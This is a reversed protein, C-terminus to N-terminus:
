ITVGSTTLYEEIAEKCEELIISQSSSMERNSKQSVGRKLLTRFHGAFTFIRRNHVVESLGAENLAKSATWETHNIIKKLLSTDDTKAVINFKDIESSKIVTKERIRTFMAEEWQKRLAPNEIKKMGVAVARLFSYPVKNKGAENVLRKSLLLLTLYDDVTKRSLGLMESVEQASVNAAEKMIAIARAKDFMSWNSHLEQLHFRTVTRQTEDMSEYVIAPVEKLLLNCSARYRREGDILLFKGGDIKEVALPTLIGQKEISSQLRALDIPDFETRPQNPDPVVMKLPILQAKEM